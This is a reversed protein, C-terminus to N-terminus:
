DTRSTHSTLCPASNNLIWSLGTEHASCVSEMFDDELFLYNIFSIFPAVHLYQVSIPNRNAVIPCCIM